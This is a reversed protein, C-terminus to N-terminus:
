ATEGTPRSSLALLMAALGTEKGTRAAIVGAIASYDAEHLRDVDKTDISSLRSILLSTSETTSLDRDIARLDGVYIPRLRLETPDAYESGKIKLMPYRLKYTITEDPNPLQDLIAAEEAERQEAATTENAMTTM